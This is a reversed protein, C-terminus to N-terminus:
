PRETVRKSHCCGFVWVSIPWLRRSSPSFALSVFAAVIVIYYCDSLLFSPPLSLSLPIPPNILHGGNQIQWAARQNAGEM